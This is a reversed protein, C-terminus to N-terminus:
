PACRFELFIPKKTRQAEEIADAYNTHWFLEDAAALAPAWLCSAACALAALSLGHTRTRM